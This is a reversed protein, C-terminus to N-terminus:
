LANMPVSANVTQSAVAQGGQYVTVTVPAVTRLSPAVRSAFEEVLEASGPPPDGIYDKSSAERFAFEFNVGNRYVGPPFSLQGPSLFFISRVDCLTLGEDAVFLGALPPCLEDIDDINNWNDNDDQLLDACLEHLAQTAGDYGFYVGTFMEAQDDGGSSMTAFVPSDWIYFYMAIGVSLKAADDSNPGEDATAPVWDGSPNSPTFAQVENTNLFSTDSAVVIDPDPFTCLDPDYTHTGANKMQKWQMALDGWNNEDGNYGTAISLEYTVDWSGFDCGSTVSSPTGLVMYEECDVWLSVPEGLDPALVHHEAAIADLSAPLVTLTYSDLSGATAPFVTKFDLAPGSPRLTGTTRGAVWVDGAASVAVGEAGDDGSTGLYTSALLRGSSPDLRAVFADSGGSSNGRAGGLIPLDTSTTTGAVAVSGDALLTVATAEDDGSGGFVVLHSLGEAGVAAVTADRDAATGPAFGSPVSGVAIAGGSTRVAPLSGAAAVPLSATHASGKSIQPAGEAGGFTWRIAKADGGAGVTFSLRLQRGDATVTLDIGPYLQPYTVSDYAPLGIQWGKADRGKLYSVTGSGGGSGVPQSGGNAGLFKLLKLERGKGGEGPAAVTITGGSGLYLSAGGPSVSEYLVGPDSTGPNPAFRLKLATGLQVAVDEEPGCPLEAAVAAPVVQATAAPTGLLAALAAAAALSLSRPWLSRRISLTM